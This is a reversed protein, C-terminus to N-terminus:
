EPVGKLRVLKIYDSGLVELVSSRTIRVMAESWYWGLAFAPMILHRWDWWHEGTGMVPLWGLEV